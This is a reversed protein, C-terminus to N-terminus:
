ELLYECCECDTAWEGIIKQIRTRFKEGIFTKAQAHTHIGERHLERLMTAVSATMLLDDECGAVCHKYIFEDTADILAKMIMMIPVFFLERGVNFMLKVSGDSQYHLM